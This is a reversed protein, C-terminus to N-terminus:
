ILEVVEAADEAATTFVTALEENDTADALNNL